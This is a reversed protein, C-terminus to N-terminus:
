GEVLQPFLGALGLGIMAVAIAWRMWRPVMILAIGGILLFASVAKPYAAFINQALDEM